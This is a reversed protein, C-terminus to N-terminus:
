SLLYGILCITAVIAVIAVIKKCSTFVEVFQKIYQELM